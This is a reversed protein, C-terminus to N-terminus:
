EFGLRSGFMRAAVVRSGRGSECGLLSSSRRRVRRSWRVPETARGLKRFTAGFKTRNGCAASQTRHIAVRDASTRGARDSVGQITRALRARQVSLAQSLAACAGHAAMADLSEFRGPRAAVPRSSFSEAVFWVGVCAHPTTRLRQRDSRRVSSLRWGQSVGHRTRQWPQDRSLLNWEGLSTSNTAHSCAVGRGGEM